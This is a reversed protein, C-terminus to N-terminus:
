VVDRRQSWTNSSNKGIKFYEAVTIIKVAYFCLIPVFIVFLVQFRFLILISFLMQAKQADEIDKAAFITNFFTANFFAV